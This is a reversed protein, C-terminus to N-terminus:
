WTLGEIILLKLRLYADRSGWIKGRNNIADNLILINKSPTLIQFYIDFPNMENGMMPNNM